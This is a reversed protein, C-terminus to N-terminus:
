CFIANLRQQCNLDKTLKEIFPALKPLNVEATRYNSILSPIIPSDWPVIISKKQTLNNHSSLVARNIEEYM